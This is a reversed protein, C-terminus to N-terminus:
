PRADTIAQRLQRALASQPAIELEKDIEALAQDRKRDRFYIVALALHSGELKPDAAIARQYAAAAKESDGAAAYQEGLLQEVRASRPAVSRMHEFASKSLNRYVIGLQYCYEADGPALKRLNELQGAAEWWDGRREYIRVLELRAQGVIGADSTNRVIAQYRAVAADTRGAKEDAMAAQLLRRSDTEAAQSAALQALLLIAATRATM